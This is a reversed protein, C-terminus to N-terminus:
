PTRMMGAPFVGLVIFDIYQLTDGHDTRYFGGRAVDAHGLIGNWRGMSQRWEVPSPPGVMPIGHTKAIWDLVARGAQLQFPTLEDAIVRPDQGRFHPRAAVSEFEIGLYVANAGPGVHQGSFSTDVLQVVQGDAKGILFHPTKPGAQFGRLCHQYGAETRHLVVGIPRFPHGRAHSRVFSIRPMVPM